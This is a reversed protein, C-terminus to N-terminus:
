RRLWRVALTTGPGRDVLDRRNAYRPNTRCIVRRESGMVARSIETTFGQFEDTALSSKQSPCSIHKRSTGVFRQSLKQSTTQWLVVSAIGSTLHRFKDLGAATYMTVLSHGKM